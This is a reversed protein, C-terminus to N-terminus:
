TGLGQLNDRLALYRPYHRKSRSNDFTPIPISVDETQDLVASSSGVKNRIVDALEFLGYTDDSFANLIPECQDSAERAMTIALAAVDEVHVFNQRYSRPGRLVMPQNQRARGVLTPLLTTGVMGPGYVSSARLHCVSVERRQSTVGDLAIEVERKSRAYADNSDDSTDIVESDESILWDTTISRRYVAISSVHIIRLLAKAGVLAEALVAASRANDQAFATSRSPIAAACHIVTSFTDLPLGRVAIPDGLDASLDIGPMPHRSHTRIRLGANRAARAVHSGIFGAAGTVLISAQERM